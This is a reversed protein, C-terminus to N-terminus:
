SLAKLNMKKSHILEKFLSSNQEDMSHFRCASGMYLMISALADTGWGFNLRRVEGKPDIITARIPNGSFLIFDANINSLKWLYGEDKPDSYNFDNVRASLNKAYLGQSDLIKYDSSAGRGRGDDSYASTETQEIIVIPETAISEDLAEGLAEFEKFSDFLDNTRGDTFTKYEQYSVFAHYYVQTFEM